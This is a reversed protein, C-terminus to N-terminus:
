ILFNRSIDNHHGQFIILDNSTKTNNFLETGLLYYLTNYNKNNFYQNFHILGGTLLGITPYIINISYKFQSTLINIANILSLSDARSLFNNGLIFSLNNQFKKTFSFHKSIFKYLILAFWHKGELLKTIVNITNGLHYMYCTANYSGGIYGLLINNQKSLKRFKLNLIPNEVRINSGIIFFIKNSKNKSLEKYNILQTYIFDNTSFNKQNNTILTSPGISNFLQKFLIASTLDTYDGLYGEFFQINKDKILNNIILFFKIEVQKKICKIQQM